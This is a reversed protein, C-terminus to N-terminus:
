KKDCLECPSLNDEILCNCCYNWDYAKYEDIMYNCEETGCIDCTRM